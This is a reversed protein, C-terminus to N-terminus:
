PKSSVAHMDYVEDEVLMKLLTVSRSGVSTGRALVVADPMYAYQYGYEACRLSTGDTFEM